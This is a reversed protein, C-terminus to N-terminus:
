GCALSAYADGGPIDAIIVPELLTLGHISVTCDEVEGGSDPPSFNYQQRVINIVRKRM